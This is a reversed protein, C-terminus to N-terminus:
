SVSLTFSRNEPNDDDDNPAFTNIRIVSAEKNGNVNSWSQIRLQYVGTSSSTWSSNNACNAEGNTVSCLVGSPDNLTVTRTGPDSPSRLDIYLKGSYEEPIASIAPKKAANLPIPAMTSSSKNFTFTTSGSGNGLWTMQIVRDDDQIEVVAEPATFSTIAAGIAFGAGGIALGIFGALAWSLLCGRGSGVKPLLKEM